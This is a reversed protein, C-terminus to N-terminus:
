LESDLVLGLFGGALSGSTIATIRAKQKQTTNKSLGCTGYHVEARGQMFEFGLGHALAQSVADLSHPENRVKGEMVIQQQYIHVTFPTKLNINVM